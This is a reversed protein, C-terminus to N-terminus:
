TRLVWYSGQVFDRGCGIRQRCEPQHRAIDRADVLAEGIVQTMARLGRRTEVIGDRQVAHQMGDFDRRIFAHADSDICRFIGLIFRGPFEPPENNHTM